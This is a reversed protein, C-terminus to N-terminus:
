LQRGDQGRRKAYSTEDSSALAAAPLSAAGFYLSTLPLCPGANGATLSKETKRRGLVRDRSIFGLRSPPRSTKGGNIWGGDMWGDM